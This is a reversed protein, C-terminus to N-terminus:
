AHSKTERLCRELLRRVRLQTASEKLRSLNLLVPPDNLLGTVDAIDQPGGAELKLLILDEPHLVRIKRRAIRIDLARTLAERQWRKHVWLIDSELGGYSRPLGVRLLLPVPDDHGGVRWEINCQQRTLVGEIAARLQLDGIPSPDSDALLDIDQTARVVGWVAVSLGGILAFQIPIHIHKATDNLLSQIRTLAPAFRPPMKRASM